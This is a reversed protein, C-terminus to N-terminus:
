VYVYVYMCMCICICEVRSWVIDLMHNVQSTDWAGIDQNFAYAYYFMNGMRTVQLCVYADFWAIMSSNYLIMEIRYVYMCVYEYEYVRSSEM